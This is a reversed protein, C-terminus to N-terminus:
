LSGGTCLDLIFEERNSRRMRLVTGNPSANEKAIEDFSGDNFGGCRATRNLTACQRYGPVPTGRCGDATRRGHEDGEESIAFNESKKPITSCLSM